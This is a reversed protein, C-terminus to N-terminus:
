RTLICVAYEYPTQVLGNIKVGSVKVTYCYNSDALSYLPRRGILLGSGANGHM